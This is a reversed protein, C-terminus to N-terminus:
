VGDALTVTVVRTKTSFAFHGYSAQHWQELVEFYGMMLDNESWSPAFQTVGDQSVTIVNVFLVKFQFWWM